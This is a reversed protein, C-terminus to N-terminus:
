VTEKLALVAAAAARGSRVASEITAPYGAVLADSCHWLGGGLDRMASRRPQGAMAAPTAAWTAQRDVMWRWGLLASRPMGLERLWSEAATWARAEAADQQDRDDPLASVVLSIVQGWPGSPRALGIVPADTETEPLFCHIEGVPARARAPPIRLFLSGIARMSSAPSQGHTGLVRQASGEPLALVVQDYAKTAREAACYLQWGGASCPTLATVRTRLSVQLGLGHLHAALPDIGDRSLNQRPHLTRLSWPGARLADRLVQHLCGASAESWDTNLASEALPRLLCHILRPDCHARTLWAQVTLGPDPARMLSNLAFLGEVLLSGLSARQPGEHSVWRLWDTQWRDSRMAGARTLLALTETYAAILLHQGADLPVAEEGWDLGRARGGLQPAAEFLDVSVSRRASLLREACALGSWGGGVIAVRM